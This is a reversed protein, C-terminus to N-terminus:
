PLRLEFRAGGLSADNSLHLSGTRGKRVHLAALRHAVMLGTGYPPPLTPFGPGDDEIRILLWGDDVTAQLHVKSRAYRGANQIANNLMDTVLDRDLLWEDIVQCDM